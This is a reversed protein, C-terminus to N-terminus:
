LNQLKHGCSCKYNLKYKNETARSFHWGQKEPLIKWDILYQSGIEIGARVWLDISVNKKDSRLHCTLMNRLACPM